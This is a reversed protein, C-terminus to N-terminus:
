IRRGFELRGNWLCVRARLHHQLDLVLARQSRQEITRAPILTLIKHLCIIRAPRVEVICVVWLAGALWWIDFALQRRASFVRM